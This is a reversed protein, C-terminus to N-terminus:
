FHLSFLFCFTNETLFQTTNIFWLAVKRFTQLRESLHMSELFLYFLIFIYIYKYILAWPGNKSKYIYIYIYIYIYLLSGGVM